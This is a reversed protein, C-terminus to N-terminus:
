RIAIEVEARESAQTVIEEFTVATGKYNVVAKPDGSAVYVDRGSLFSLDTALRKATVNTFCVSIREGNLLSQRVGRLHGFDEKAIQINGGSSLEDLVDWLPKDKVDLNFTEDPRRPNFMVPAGTIRGLAAAVSNSDANKLQLTIPASMDMM